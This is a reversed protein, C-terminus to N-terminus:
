RQRPRYALGDGGLRVHALRPAVRALGQSARLLRLEGCWDALARCLGEVDPHGARIQAEVAAIERRCRNSEHRQGGGNRPSKTSRAGTVM